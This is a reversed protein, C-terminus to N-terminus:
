GRKRRAMVRALVAELADPEMPKALYDDMGEALFRERDGTLAHATMAVIPLAPDVKGARGQRVARTVAVGDMGPMQVDMFVLDFPERELAALTALGDNAGTPQHGLRELLRMAYLRNVANDEAVLVKLGQAPAAPRAPEAPPAPCAPRLPLSFFISTGSGPQSDVSLRGGLRSVVRKVLALGLGTGGHKRTASGDAQVFPEFLTPLTEDPIGPGSDEVGFLVWRRGKPDGHPLLHAFLQVAGRETFKVANALLNFMVQRVAAEPGALRQPGGEPAQVRLAVGKAAAQDRFGAAVDALLGALDFDREQEPAVRGAEIRSIDLIDNLVKLLTRGSERIMGLNERQEQDLDTDLTLEAMGLIGNLPTRLEHSMNALFESRARGAAQARDRAAALDREALKGRTVDRVAGWARAARGDPGAEFEAGGSFHRVAGSKNLVRYEATFPRSELVGRDWLDQVRALDEPHLRTFFFEPSAPAEGPEYGLLRFMNDSAVGQGTALDVEWSGCRALREGEALFRRSRTLEEQAQYRATLDLMVGVVGSPEGPSPSFLSKRLLMVRPGGPTDLVSEYEMVGGRVLLEAERDMSRRGQDAPLIEAATRGVIRKRPRGLMDAFAQNCGLYRGSPDKYFIPTPAAELIADLLATRECLRAQDEVRDSVDQVTGAFRAPRGEPDRELRTHCVGHGLSGDKRRFRFAYEAEPEGRRMRELPGTVQDRDEPHCIHQLFFDFDPTIEGPEYGYIRYLEDSWHLFGLGIDREWDGIRGLRQARVLRAQNETLREAMEVQGTVDRAVSITGREKGDEDLLLRGRCDAWFRAGDKRRPRSRATWGGTARAQALRADLGARDGGLAQEAWNRGLVEDATWGYLEEAGRSWYIIRHDLDRAVVAEGVSDLIQAQFRLREMAARRETVDRATGQTGLFAAGSGSDGWVGEADVLFTKAPGGGKAQLRAEFFRTRRLGTRREDLRHRARDRDDPHVLDFISAGLLEEPSWGYEAVAASVYQIRGEPDLRYIIDPSVRLISALREESAKLAAEAEKYQTVEHSVVSAFEVEGDRNRLPTYTVDFCARGRAHFPFWQEYRVVEGALVRDLHPKIDREFTAQGWVEAVTKGLVECEPRNLTQCYARNAARYVYDRGILTMFDASAEAMSRYAEREEELQKRRTVDQSVTLWCERGAFRHPRSSLLFTVEGEPRLSKFELSEVRGDRAMIGHLAARQKETLLGLELSTRGLVEDRTFGRTALFHENVALIRGEEACTIFVSAPVADFVARFNYEADDRAEEARKRLAVELTLRLQAPTFPKTVFGYPAAQSAREVVEPDTSATLLVVPIGLGAQIDRCAAIGDSGGLQVGMLALDPRAERALRRAQDADSATGAVAYGMARLTEALHMAIVAEDEVILIRKPPAHM